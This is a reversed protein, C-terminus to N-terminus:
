RFLLYVDSSEGVSGCDLSSGKFSIDKNKTMQSYMNIAHFTSTGGGGFAHWDTVEQKNVLINMIAGSDNFPLADATGSAWLNPKMLGPFMIEVLFFNDVYIDDGGHSDGALVVERDGQLLFSIEKSAMVHPPANGAGGHNRSVIDNRREVFTTSNAKEVKAILKVYYCVKGGGNANVARPPIVFKSSTVEVYSDCTASIAVCAHGDYTQGAPCMVTQVDCKMTMPNFKENANCTLCSNGLDNSGAPCVCAGAVPVHDQACMVTPPVTPATPPTTDGGGAPTNASTTNGILSTGAEFTVGSSCNQYSVM